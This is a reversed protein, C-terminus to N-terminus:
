PFVVSRVNQGAVLVTGSSAREIAGILKLLTTKGAGSHGTIFVMEGPEVSFSVDKLAEYGGPYRKFVQSFSIIDTALSTSCHLYSNTPMSRVCITRAKAWESTCSPSPGRRLMKRGSIRKM